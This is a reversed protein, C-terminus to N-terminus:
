SPEQAIVSIKGNRELIAFKIQELTEIGQSSRAAEMVDAEILRAHRLRKHLIKGNEVLITPGGDILQSVWQSRQKLLSLGVDIVILTVIVLMSNTLSFDDGLLAQQTAEGMIMLLVFDFTTLEALSRRGAIKFLVMLALYIAAARLVSDM